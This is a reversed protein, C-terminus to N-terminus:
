IPQNVCVVQVGLIWISVLVLDNVQQSFAAERTILPTIKKAQNVTSIQRHKRAAMNTWNFLRGGIRLSNLFHLLFFFRRYCLRPWHTQNWCAQVLPLGERRTRISGIEWPIMLQIRPRNFSGGSIALPVDSVHESTNFPSLWDWLAQSFSCRSLTWPLM